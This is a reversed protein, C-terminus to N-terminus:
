WRLKECDACAPVGKPKCRNCLLSVPVHKAKRGTVRENDDTPSQDLQGPAWQTQPEVAAAGPSETAVMPTDTPQTSAAAVSPKGVRDILARIADAPVPAITALTALQDVSLYASVTKGPVASKPRAM